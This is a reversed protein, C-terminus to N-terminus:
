DIGAQESLWLPVSMAIVGECFAKGYGLVGTRPAALAPQQPTRPTRDQAPGSLLRPSTEESGRRATTGKSAQFSLFGM